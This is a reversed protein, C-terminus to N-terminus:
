YRIEFYVGEATLNVSQYGMEIMKASVKEEFRKGEEQLGMEFRTHELSKLALNPSINYQKQIFDIVTQPQSEILLCSEELAKLLRRIKQKKNKLATESSAIDCCPHAPDDDSFWHFIHFEQPFQYIIPVYFSLADVQNARLAASMEMPNRFYVLEATINYHQLFIEALIDLTSAKLVGIKKGELDAPSNINRGILGDSERELFSIIKVKKDNAIDRWIYTFPLIAVDVSGSILAENAEWGSSFKILKIEESSLLNQDLAFTLPLHNLSPSIIGIVLKDEVKNKCGILFLFLSILFIMKKM